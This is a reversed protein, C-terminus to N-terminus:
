KINKLTIKVDFMKKVGNNRITLKKQTTSTVVPTSPENHKNPTYLAGNMVKQYDLAIGDTTMIYGNIQYKWQNPQDNHVMQHCQKCLPVLNSKHNKQLNNIFGADNATCQFKIHHTDVAKNECDPIHCKDIYVKTNYRSTKTPMLETVSMIEKRIDNALDIFQKDLNMAKAVELGYVPHGAGDEIKRDYVLKGTKEDFIVKLHCSRINKLNKIRDLQSLQHLHSAFLFNVNKQELTIIAASVISVASITETGHCIEDGLVLSRPDARSIIGRLETMEVAFSSLGKFLNDNGIIRTLITKYPKFRFWTAPVYMGCQAMIVCIGIAKMLSSKGSCNVGFLLIGRCNDRMEIDQPVYQHTEQFREILPHRISKVEFYSPEDAVNEGIEPKCYNYLLSTKANSKYFDINSICKSLDNMLQSYAVSMESLFNKYVELITNLLTQQLEKLHHSYTKMQNSTIKCNKGTRNTIVNLDKLDIENVNTKSSNSDTNLTAINSKVTIRQSKSTKLQTVFTNWRSNTISIHHGIDETYEHQCFETTKQTNTKQLHSLTQSIFTAFSDFYNNYEEIQSQIEDIKKNYGKNFFSKTINSSAINTLTYKGIEELNLVNSYYDMMTKLQYKLNDPILETMIDEQNNKIWYNDFYSKNNDHYCLLQQVHQYSSHLQYFDCPQLIGLHLKRNYKEIDGIQKLYTEYKQYIYANTHGNLKKSSDLTKKTNTQSGPAEQACPVERVGKDCVQRFIEVYKYRKEIKCPDIIPMLMKEKLLRKGMPTSTNDVLNFICSLKDNTSNTSNTSSILNLQNICNNDLILYRESEWIVPPHINKIVCENQNYCFQLMLIFAMLSTPTKELNLFEIPKLLGTKPFVKKLFDNQYSLKYYEQSVNDNNYHVLCKDLDLYTILETKSMINGRQHIVVEKPQFTQIFRYTDDLAYNQDGILNYVQHVISNGVSIDIASLGITMMNISNQSVKSPHKKGESEIYISLLYTSNSHTSYKINTTPGVITTVERKPNPSPTVQEVVVVIFGHDETLMTIYRDVQNLPFGAMLFNSRDNELIAKNRRTMQINLLESIEKVLGVKEKSNDVGYVEFFMGNQYLVTTRSGYIQQYKNHYTEYEEFLGM